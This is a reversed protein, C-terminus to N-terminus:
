PGCTSPAAGPWAPQASFLVMIRRGSRRIILEPIPVYPDGNGPYDPMRQPVGNSQRQARQHINALLIQLNQLIDSPLWPLEARLQFHRRFQQFPRGSPKRSPEPFADDRDHISGIGFGLEQASRGGGSDGDDTSQPLIRCQITKRLFWARGDPADGCIHFVAATGPLVRREDCPSTWRYMQM